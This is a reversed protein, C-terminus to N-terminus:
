VSVFSTSDMPYNWKTAIKLCFRKKFLSKCFAGTLFGLDNITHMQLDVCLM